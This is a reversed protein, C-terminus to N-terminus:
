TEMWELLETNGKIKTDCEAVFSADNVYQIKDAECRWISEQLIKMLKERDPACYRVTNWLQSAYTSTPQDHKM